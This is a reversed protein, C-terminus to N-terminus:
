NLDYFIHWHLVILAREEKFNEQEITQPVFVFVLVVLEALARVEM